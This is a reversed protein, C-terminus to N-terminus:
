RTEWNYIFACCWFILYISLINSFIVTINIIINNIYCRFDGCVNPLARVTRVETSGTARCTNFLDVNSRCQLVDPVLPRPHNAGLHSNERTQNSKWPFNYHKNNRRNKLIEIYNINIIHKVKVFLTLKVTQKWIWVHICLEMVFKRDWAMFLVICGLKSFSQPSILLHNM